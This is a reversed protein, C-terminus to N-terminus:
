IFYRKEFVTLLENFIFSNAAIIEKGFIYNRTNNFTGATGGAQQVLFAGAAVDWPHLGYEFFADFRGCAVYALDVAASGPRRIGRSHQLLYTFVNLYQPLVSFDSYPFGTGILAEALKKTPSIRIVNDNLFAPAGKWSYFCENRNPEYVVGLVIENQCALAISVSYFPVGHVFNTTGDLPDILWTYKTNLEAESASEEAIIEAKPLLLTLKQKIKKESTKDV